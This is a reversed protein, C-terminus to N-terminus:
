QWTNTQRESGQIVGRLFFFSVLKFFNKKALYKKLSHVSCEISGACYVAIKTGNRLTLIILFDNQFFGNKNLNRARKLFTSITM